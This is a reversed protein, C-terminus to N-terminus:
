NSLAPSQVTFTQWSTLEITGSGVTTFINKLKQLLQKSSINSVSILVISSFQQFNLQQKCGNNVQQRGFTHFWAFNWSFEFKYCNLTM